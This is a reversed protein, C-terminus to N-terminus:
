GENQLPEVTAFPKIDALKGVFEFDAYAGYLAVEVVSEAKERPVFVAAAIVPQVLGFEAMKVRLVDFAEGAKAADM